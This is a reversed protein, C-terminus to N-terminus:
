KKHTISYGSLLSRAISSSLADILTATLPDVEQGSVFDGMIHAALDDETLHQPPASTLIDSAGGCGEDGVSAPSPSLVTPSPDAAASVAAPSDPFPAYRDDAHCGCDAQTCEFLQEPEVVDREAEFENLWQPGVATTALKPLTPAPFLSEVFEGVGAGVAKLAASLINVGCGWPM